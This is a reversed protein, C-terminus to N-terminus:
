LLTTDLMFMETRENDFAWVGPLGVFVESGGGGAGELSGGPSGGNEASAVEWFGCNRSNQIKSLTWNNVKYQFYPYIQFYINFTVLVQDFSPTSDIEPINDGKFLSLMMELRWLIVEENSPSSFYVIWLIKKLFLDFIILFFVGKDFLAPFICVFITSQIWSPSTSFVLQEGESLCNWLLIYIMMVQNVQDFHFKYCSWTLTNSGHLM